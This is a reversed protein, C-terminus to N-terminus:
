PRNIRTRPQVSLARLFVREVDDSVPAGLSRPTPRLDEDLAAGMAHLADGDGGPPKGTLLESLVLAFAYVDTWTGTAGLRRVWQEPAAYLATFPSGQATAEFMETTTALDNM